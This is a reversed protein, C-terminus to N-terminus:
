LSDSLHAAMGWMYTHAHPDARTKDRFAKLQTELYEARQGALRPFTPSISNGNLGHCSSCVHVTGQVQQPTAPAEQAAAAASGALFATFLVALLDWRVPQRASIERPTDISM